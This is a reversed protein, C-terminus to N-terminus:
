DVCHTINENKLSNFSVNKVIPRQIQFVYGQSINTETWKFDSKHTIAVNEDCNIQIQVTPFLHIKIEKRLWTCIRNTYRQLYYFYIKRHNKIILSDSM